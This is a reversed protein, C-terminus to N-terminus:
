LVGSDHKVIGQDIGYKVLFPGALVTFTWLTILLTASITQRKYPGLLSLSRRAVKAAKERDLKDAEDVGAMSWVTVGGSRRRSRRRGSRGRGARRPLARQQPAPRQAHGRRHHTRRRAARGPGRTCHNRPPARDRYDHTRAHGRHA